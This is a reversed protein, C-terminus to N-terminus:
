EDDGGEHALQTQDTGIDTDAPLHGESALRSIVARRIWANRPVDGRAKDVLKVLREPITLHV